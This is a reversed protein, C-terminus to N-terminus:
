GGAIPPFISVLDGDKLHVGLDRDVNEGNVLVMQAMEKPINFRDLLEKLTLGEEVELHATGGESDPPLHRRLNAFLKLDIKMFQSM